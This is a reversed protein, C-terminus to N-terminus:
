KKPRPANIEAELGLVEDHLSAALAPRLRTAIPDTIWQVEPPTNGYRDAMAEAWWHKLEGQRLDHKDAFQREIWEAMKRNLVTNDFSFAAYAVPFFSRGAGCDLTQGVLWGFRQDDIAILKALAKLANDDCAYAITSAALDIARRPEAAKDTFLDLPNPSKLVEEIRRELVPLVEASQSRALVPLGETLGTPMGHDFATNTYGIAEASSMKLFRDYFPNSGARQQALTQDSTDDLVGAPFYEAASAVVVGMLIMGLWRRFRTMGSAYKLAERSKSQLQPRFVANGSLTAWLGRCRPTDDGIRVSTPRSPENKSRHIRGAASSHTYGLHIDIFICCAALFSRILIRRIAHSESPM